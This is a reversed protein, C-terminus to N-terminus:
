SDSTGSQMLPKPAIQPTITKLVLGVLGSAESLAEELLPVHEGRGAHLSQIMKYSMETVLGHGDTTRDVLKDHMLVLRGDNTRHTDLRRFRCRALHRQPHRLTNEPAHGIRLIPSSTM